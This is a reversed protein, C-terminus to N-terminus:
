EVVVDQHFVAHCDDCSKQLAAMAETAADLSKAHVARNVAAAADRMEICYQYWKQVEDPKETEDANPMSGHAIVAIAASGGALRAINRDFRRIDRKMRTHILPVEGMLPAMAAVKMWKLSSSDGTSFLAAKAREVGQRASPYDAAKALDQAAKILGPAAQKFQSPQDHLAVALALVALAHTKKELKTVAKADIRKTAHRYEAEDQVCEELEELYFKVQGDLDAVPVISSLAPSQPLDAASLGRAAVAAAALAALLCPRPLNM